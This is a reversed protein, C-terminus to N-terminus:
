APKAADTAIAFLRPQLTLMVGSAAISYLGMFLLQYPFAIGRDILWGTLMPSAASALVAASFTLARLEGLYKLGFLEPWLAGALASDFGATFGVLMMAPFAIWFGAVSSLAILGLAMPLLYIPLMQRASFRDILGGSLLSAGVQVIAFLSFVSAYRAMDWGKVEILNLQHFLLSTFMFSPCLTGTLMLWFVPARLLQGRRWSHKELAHPQGHDLAASGQPVRERSLLAFLVPAAVLIMIAASLWWLQRFGFASIVAVAGAPMFAIGAAYGLSVISIARGRRADFWRGTATMAVQSMMGQGFLRLALFAFFLMWVAQVMSMLLCAVALGCAVVMAATRTTVRDVLKGFELLILASATTALAYVLGIGGHNLSFRQMLADNSLSIFYTQGFSSTLCMLFGAFLWRAEAGLFQIM